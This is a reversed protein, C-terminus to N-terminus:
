GSVRSVIKKTTDESDVKNGVRLHQKESNIDKFASRLSERARHLRGKVVTVSVELIDSMEQYSHGQVPGLIMVTKQKEPLAAIRKAIDERLLRHEVEEDPLPHSSPPLVMPANEELNEYSSSARSKDHKRNYQLCTNTAVRYLWTYFQSKGHFNKLNKYVQYFIEQTLEEPDGFRGSIRYALNFVKKVYKDYLSKFAAEEGRLVADILEIDSRSM